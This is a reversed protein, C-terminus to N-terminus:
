PQGKLAADGERLIGDRQAPGSIDGRMFALTNELAEELVKVRQELSEIYRMISRMEGINTQAPDFDSENRAAECRIRLADRAFRPSRDEVLRDQMAIGGQPQPRPKAPKIKGEAVLRKVRKKIRKLNAADIM